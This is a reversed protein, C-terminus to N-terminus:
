EHLVDGVEVIGRKSEPEVTKCADTETLLKQEKKNVTEINFM